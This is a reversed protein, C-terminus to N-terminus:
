STLILIGPPVEDDIMSPPVVTPVEEDDDMSPPVEDDIMAEDEDILLPSVKNM